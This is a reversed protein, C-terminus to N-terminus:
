GLASLIRKLREEIKIYEVLIMDMKATSWNLNANLWHVGHIYEYIEANLLKAIAAERDM